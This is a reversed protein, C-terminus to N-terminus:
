SERAYIQEVFKTVPLISSITPANGEYLANYLDSFLSDEVVMKKIDNIVFQGSEDKLRLDIDYGLLDIKCYGESGLIQFETAINRPEAALTINLIGSINDPYQVLARVTDNYDQDLHKYKYSKTYLVEPIGFYKQLIDLNHIGYELVLKLPKKMSLFGSPRNWVQNLDVCRIEGLLKKELIEGLAKVISMYRCQLVVYINVGKQKALNEVEVVKSSENSFPKEVLVDYGHEIAEKTIEYHYSSQTLVVVCDISEKLSDFMEKHDYFIQPKWGKPLEVNLDKSHNAIGIIEFKDSNKVIGELHKKFIDGSGIIGLKIRSKPM